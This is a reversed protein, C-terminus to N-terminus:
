IENNKIYKKGIEYESKQPSRKSETSLLSKELYELSDSHLCSPYTWNTTKWSYGFITNKLRQLKVCGDLAPFYFKSLIIRTKDDIQKIIM